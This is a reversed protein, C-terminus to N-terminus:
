PDRVNITHYDWRHSNQQVSDGRYLRVNLNGRKVSCGYLTDYTTDDVAFDGASMSYETKGTLVFVKENVTCTSDLTAGTEDTKIQITYTRTSDLGSAVIGFDKSDGVNIRQTGDNLGYLRLRADEFVPTSHTETSVLTDDELLLKVTVTARTADCAELDFWIDHSISGAPVTVHKQQQSCGSDFSLGIRDGDEDDEITLKVKYSKSPDLQGVTVKISPHGAGVSYWDMFGSFGIQRDSAPQVTVDLTATDITNGGSSLTATVTGGTTACGHLMIMGTTHSTINAPVTPDEQQDTCDSNFGINTNDATVRITYTASSDLNSAIVKFDDTSGVNLMDDLESFAISPRLKVTVTQTADDITSGGSLLTATVTGGTTACGYLTLTNTTYSTVGTTVTVDEQQDTCNSDFGIGNNTTVQITYSKSSDLNGVSVTFADSADKNLELVLGEIAITPSGALQVTVAQTATDVETSGILLKATVTGGATGCGHLVLDGANSTYAESNAPVTLPTAEHDTCDSNFGIGGGNGTTVQITYTKSSDLNSAAVTFADSQGVSIPSSLDSISITPNPLVTVTQEASVLSNAGSKLTATVEGEEADCGYLTISDTTHSQSNATVTLSEERDACDSTFGIEANETTLEITYSTSSDLNGVSVTFADSADKNLESVLGEIAITPSGALQVTVAQTATDVETNGSLLEATVAGGATGCGYLVLDGANSTFTQSNADVTVPEEHDTCDSNFGIGRGNDTTVRISYTESSVLHQASVTFEDSAGVNISAELDSISIVPSPVVTVDETDDAISNGDLLLNATVTGGTAACGYLTIDGTTHSAGGSSVSVDKQRETCDSNFGINTNDTTLRVTYGKYSDLNALSVTFDDSTEENLSTALGSIEITPNLIVTVSQTGTDVTTSGLLLKATVTGGPAVCGHLTFTATHTSGSPVTVEDQQTTCGANFGVNGNGTSVQITYSESSGLNEAKVTFQDSRGENMSTDLGEITITSENVTVVQPTSDIQTTGRVLIATVTGGPAACAYLTFSADHSSVNQVAADKTRDNCDSSFGVNGNSASVRITYSESSALNEASVTFPHSSGENLTGVLGSIEVKSEKVTVVQADTAVETTDRLLKATVTGGPAECGHLTISGTTFSTSSATVTVIEEQDTCDDSFGVYTNDTTVKISYSSTAALNEVSVTFSHTAAENLELALGEITVKPENVKVTQTDSVVTNVGSLLSATVVAGESDCAYVTFDASGSMVGATVTATDERDTCDITFGADSNNTTVKISYSSSSDLNGVNVTFSDSAAENLDAVLGDISITPSGAMQVTVDRTATDVTPGGSLLTATVTGSATGCGHLVLFTATTTYSTSRAPVDVNKQADSCDSNFGIGGGNDTTVQIAYTASSDLHSAVVTFPDSQGVNIASSLESISITPSPIVTVKQSTSAIEEGALLLKATVTGGPATCGYLTFNATHSESNPTVNVDSQGTACGTVFGLDDRNTAVQITYSSSSVLNSVSVTFPDNDGENMSDVLDVISITPDPVVAVDQTDTDITNGDLVLTATVTGESAACGYLVFDAVHSSGAPVTVQSQSNSCSSDFGINAHDSSVQITYTKSSDLNEAKVMFSQSDGVGMSGALQEISVSPGPPPPPNNPTPPPNNGQPPPSNGQPPPPNSPPNLPPLDPLPSLSLPPLGYVWSVQVKMWNDDTGSKITYAGSVCGTREAPALAYQPVLCAEKLLDGGLVRVVTGVEPMGEVEEVWLQFAVRQFRQSIFPGHKEPYSMPLGYLEIAQDETWSEMGEPNPNAFYKARIEDNTLWSLRIERAKNWDGGSGDVKIPLPVGKMDLLWQDFGAHELMEFTNGLYVRNVEPRWQLLAGQTVQYTFGDDLRFRYSAPYGLTPVGGLRDFEDAFLIGYDNTVEYDYIVASSEQELPQGSALHFTLNPLAYAGSACSVREKPSLAHQPVLCAEKLLDGGLVRVVTGVAPMGEVEEVWLQFAVRQFRQSIFPGHKEPYSMPLGYLEIAQRVTWSAMGEPNPSAFYKAKIEDNTLWSLRIEKAKEWDGSSGDDKIPLPIGKTDLLLQDFGAHELMEFTNGLYVRDVEPRWQLLAGQTVQYTFGDSLRFRYSAPYGLTPAGGLREFEDGFLVGYHNTVEYDFIVTSANRELRQGSASSVALIAAISTLLAIALWRTLKLSM